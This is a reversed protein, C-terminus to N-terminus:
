KQYEVLKARELSAYVEKVPLGLEHALRQIAERRSASQSNATIQGFKVLIETDSPIDVTQSVPREPVVVTFEGKPQNFRRALEAPTGWCLEEHIKTLERCALIQHEVLLGLETLTQSLRHPSEFFVVARKSNAESVESLWKKRAISRSPPFGMFTFGDGSLGAASLAAVVASAGPIPEVRFGAERVANVIHAGPDSVAPTGADTVLAVSEGAVLRAVIAGARRRENHEHVSLVPTSIDYHRLLVGTRRTDEAAVLSVAKLIKLARLTVDELNGIPTAVVYLTGARNAATPVPM